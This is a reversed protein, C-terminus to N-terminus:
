KCPCPVIDGARARKRLPSDVQHETRAPRARRNGHRGGKLVPSEEKATFKGPSMRAAVRWTVDETGRTVIGVLEAGDAFDSEYKAAIYNPLFLLKLPLTLPKPVM